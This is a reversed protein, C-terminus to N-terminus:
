VDVILPLGNLHLTKDVKPPVTADIVDEPAVDLSSSFLSNGTIDGLTFSPCSANACEVTLMCDIDDCDALGDGDNDLGDSCDPEFTPIIDLNYTGYEFEEYSDVVVVVSQGAFLFVDELTSTYDKDLLTPTMMVLLKKVWVIMKSTYFLIMTQERQRLPIHVQTPQHSTSSQKRVALEKVPPVLDKYYIVREMTKVQQLEREQQIM